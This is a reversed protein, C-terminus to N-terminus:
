LAVSHEYPVESRLEPKAEYRPNELAKARALSSLFSAAAERRAFISERDTMVVKTNKEGMKLIEDALRVFKELKAKAQVREGPGVNRWKFDRGNSEIGHNTERADVVLPQLVIRHQTRLEAETQNLEILKANGSTILEASGNRRGESCAGLGLTVITACVTVM